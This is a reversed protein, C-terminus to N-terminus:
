LVLSIGLSLADVIAVVASTASSRGKFEVELPLSSLSLSLWDDALDLTTEREDVKDLVEGDDRAWREEM